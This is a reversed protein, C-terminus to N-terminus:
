ASQFVTSNKLLPYATGLLTAYVVDRLEADALPKIWDFSIAIGSALAATELEGTYRKVGDVVQYRPRNPYEPGIWFNLERRALDRVIQAYAAYYSEDRTVAAALALDMLRGRAHYYVTSPDGPLELGGAARVADASETIAAWVAAYRPDSVRATVNDFHDLSFLLGRHDVAVSRAPLRVRIDNPESM